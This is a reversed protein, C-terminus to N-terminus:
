PSCLSETASALFDMCPMREEQSDSWSTSMLPVETRYGDESLGAPFGTKRGRMAPLGFTRPKWDAGAITRVRGMRYFGMKSSRPEFVAPENTDRTSGPKEIIM